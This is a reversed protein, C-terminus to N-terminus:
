DEEDLNKSDISCETSCYRAPESPDTRFRSGCWQCARTPLRPMAEDIASHLDRGTTEIRM